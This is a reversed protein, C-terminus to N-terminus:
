FEVRHVKRVMSCFHRPDILCGNPSCELKRPSNIPFYKTLVSDVMSQIADAVVIAQCYYRCEDCSRPYTYQIGVVGRYMDPPANTENVYHESAHTRIIGDAFYRAPKQVTHQINEVPTDSDSENVVPMAFTATFAFLVALCVYGRMKPPPTIIM